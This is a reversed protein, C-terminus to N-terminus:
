GGVTETEIAVPYKRRHQGLIVQAYNCAAEYGKYHDSDTGYEKESRELLENLAGWFCGAQVMITDNDHNVFYATRGESGVGSVSVIHKAGSLNALSLDAGSLVTGSLNTCSLKAYSLHAGSLHAGSLNALSLNADSSFRSVGKGSALHAKLEVENTLKTTM